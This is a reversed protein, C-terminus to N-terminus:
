KINRNDIVVKAKGEFRELSNPMKIQVVPSISLVNKMREAVKKELATIPSLTDFGVQSLYDQRVEVQVTLKDLNNV